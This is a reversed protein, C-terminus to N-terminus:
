AAHYRAVSVETKLASLEEILKQVGDVAEGAMYAEGCDGCIEAPVERITFVREDLVFPLTAYGQRTSGGCLPCIGGDADLKGTM